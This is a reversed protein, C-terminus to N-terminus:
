PRARAYHLYIAAGVLLALAAAALNLWSASAMLGLSLLLAGIPILPGGPLEIANPQGAFRRRLKLVAAACGIYTFLRTLASLLALAFFAKESVYIGSLALLLALVGTTLIAVWPTRWRPHISALAPPGLGDAGMAYLYRPGLLMTNSSTGLISLAAGVTLLLAAAPGAFTEAAEALQTRETVEGPFTGQAVVQVMVYLLTVVVIMTVLAFPLDRKPRRFEGAAAPINEFGAYAWLLLLVGEALRTPDDLPPPGFALGRSWDVYWVGVVIFFLLPVLKAIVLAVGTRAGSRVGILNAWTLLGLSAVVISAQALGGDAAAPWFHSVALALGNALAAASAVRTIWTMWGIQFGAFPGFAERVYLYSGGPRDFWSAAQAYCLVLLAVALGALTVAWLSAAGLLVISGAPLLYIGSGVVDNISLGVLQWRGVARVLHPQGPPTPAPPAVPAEATERM